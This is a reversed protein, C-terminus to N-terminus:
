SRRPSISTSTLRRLARRDEHGHVRRRGPRDAGRHHRRRHAVAADARPRRARGGPGGHRRRRAGLLGADVAGDGEMMVAVVDRPVPQTPEGGFFGPLRFLTATGFSETEWGLVAGYFAKASEPDPTSLASIAWAGPENVLQAGTHEGLQWLGLMAGSPDAVIAIRGGELSDFPQHVLAGGADTAKAAAADADDVQVYTMWVPPGIAQGGFGAVDRGRLQFMSYEDRASDWGFLGTYFSALADGDAQWTDVWCPVGPAFGDRESM